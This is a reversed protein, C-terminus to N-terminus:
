AETPDASLSRLLAGPPLLDALTEYYVAKAISQAAKERLGAAYERLDEATCDGLRIWRGRISISTELRGHWGRLGLAKGSLNSAPTSNRAPDLMRWQSLKVQVWTPLLLELAEYLQDETFEGERFQDVLAATYEHPTVLTTTNRLEKLREILTPEIM